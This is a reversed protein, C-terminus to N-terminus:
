KIRVKLNKVIRKTEIKAKCKRCSNEIGCMVCYWSQLNKIHKIIAKNLVKDLKIREQEVLGPNAKIFDDFYKKSM